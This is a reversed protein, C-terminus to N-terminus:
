FLLLRIEAVLYFLVVITFLSFQLLLSLLLLLLLNILYILSNFLHFFKRTIYLFLIIYYESVIRNISQLVLHFFYFLM